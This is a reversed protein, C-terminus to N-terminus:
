LMGTQRLSVAQAADNESIGAIALAEEHPLNRNIANLYCVMGKQQQGKEIGRKIGDNMLMEGLLTM